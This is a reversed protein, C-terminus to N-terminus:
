LAYISNVKVINFKKLDYRENFQLFYLIYTYNKKLSINSIKQLFM